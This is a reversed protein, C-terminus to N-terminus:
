ERLDQYGPNQTLEPNRQLENASLPWLLDKEQFTKGWNNSAGVVDVFYVSGEPGDFQPYQRTRIIDDWLKFELPLERINEAWVEKVFDDKGLGRLENEFDSVTKGTLSARAKVQALYNVAESTVGSSEAIAEAAMLLVESYRYINFDKTGRSTELMAVEDYYYWNGLEGLDEVEGNPREFETFFFQHEQARIDEDSDYVNTLGNSARFVNVTISYKFVGWGAAKNPFSYTPWWGSTSVTNNYEYAYIAEDLGDTTRLINFASRDTMNENETLSHNGSNIVAQAAAAADAYHNERVPYGSVQLYVDALVTNVINSTIRNGNKYFAANPLVSAADKLDSIIQNYVESSPTRSLYLDNLSEYPELTMPIDGFMKVLHFMNIARFFKAEALLNSKQTEDMEIEPIYKIASNARNIAAFCADWVDDLQNAINVATRNLDKSYQVVVEQGAYENDYYGSVYGGLMAYPGAYASPANYMSPFGARYLSNINSVAQSPTEYFSNGTVSSRPDEDLFGSCSTTVGVVLSFFIIILINNKM